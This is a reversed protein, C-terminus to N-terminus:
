FNIIHICYCLNANDARLMSLKPLTWCIVYIQSGPTRITIRVCFTPHFFFNKIIYIFKTYFNFPLLREIPQFVFSIKIQIKIQWCFFKSDLYLSVLM